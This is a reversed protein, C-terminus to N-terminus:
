SMGVCKSGLNSQIEYNERVEKPYYEAEKFRRMVQIICKVTIPHLGLSKKIRSLAEERNKKYKCSDEKYKGMETWDTMIERTRIMRGFKLYLAKMHRKYKPAGRSLKEGNKNPGIIKLMDSPKNGQRLLVEIMKLKDNSWTIHGYNRKNWLRIGDFVNYRSEVLKRFWTQQCTEARKIEDSGPNGKLLRITQTVKTPSVGVTKSIAPSRHGKVHEIAILVVFKPLDIGDERLKLLNKTLQELHREYTLHKLHEATPITEFGNNVTDDAEYRALAVSKSLSHLSRLQQSQKLIGEKRSAYFRKHAKNMQSRHRVSKCTPCFRETRIRHFPNNCEYCRKMGEPLGEISALRRAMKTRYEIRTAECELCYKSLGDFSSEDASYSSDPKGKKCKYCIRQGDKDKEILKRHRMYLAFCKKCWPHLGDKNSIQSFFHRTTAPYSKGCKTCTKPVVIPPQWNCKIHKIAHRRIEEKRLCSKCIYSLGKPTKYFYDTTNPLEKKCHSCVRALLM